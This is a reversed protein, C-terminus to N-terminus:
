CFCKHDYVEGRATAKRVEKNVFRIEEPTKEYLYTPNIIPKRNM